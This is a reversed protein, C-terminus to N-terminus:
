NNDSNNIGPTPQETVDSVHTKLIFLVEGTEGPKYFIRGAKCTWMVTARDIEAIQEPTLDRFLEMASLHKIKTRRTVEDLSGTEEQCRELDEAPRNKFSKHTGPSRDTM